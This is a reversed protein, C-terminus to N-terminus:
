YISEITQIPLRAISEIFAFLKMMSARGTCPALRAPAGTPRRVSYVSVRETNRLGLVGFAAALQKACALKEEFLMSTSADVVIVVHMEEEHHFLKLYPRHLRSFINWDPDLDRNWHSMNNPENWLMIAEVM